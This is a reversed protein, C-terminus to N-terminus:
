SKEAESLLDKLLHSAQYPMPQLAYAFCLPVVLLKTGTNIWYLSKENAKRMGSPHFFIIKSKSTPVM